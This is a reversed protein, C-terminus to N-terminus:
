MIYLWCSRATTCRAPLTVCMLPTDGAGNVANVTGPAEAALIGACRADQAVGVPLSAGGASCAAHLPTNGAGNGLGLDLGPVRVLALLADACRGRAAVHAATDGARDCANVDAGQVLAARLDEVSNARAATLLASVPDGYGGQAAMKAWTFPPLPPPTHTIKRTRKRRKTRTQNSTAHVRRLTAQAGGHTAPPADV